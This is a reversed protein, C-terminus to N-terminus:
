LGDEDDEEGFDLDMREACQDIREAEIQMLRRNLSNEGKGIIGTMSIPGTVVTYRLRRGANLAKEIKDKEMM